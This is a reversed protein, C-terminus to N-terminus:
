KAGCGGSDVGNPAVLLTAASATRAVLTLLCGFAIVVTRARPM